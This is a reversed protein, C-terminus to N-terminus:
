VVRCYNNLIIGSMFRFKRTLLSKGIVSVSFQGVYDINERSKTVLNRKWSVLIKEKPINIKKAWFDKIRNLDKYRNQHVYLRFHMNKIRYASFYKEIFNIFMLIVRYDSNSFVCNAKSGEAEYLLIGAVFFPDKLFKKYQQYFDRLEKSSKRIKTVRAAKTAIAQKELKKKIKINLHDATLTLGALTLWNNLTSKAVLVEKQIESYSLGKKRLEICKHYLDLNGLRVSSKNTM